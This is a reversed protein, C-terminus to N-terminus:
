KHTLMQQAHIGLVCSGVFSVLADNHVHGRYLLIGGAVMALLDTSVPALYSCNSEKPVTSESLQFYGISSALGALGGWTSANM